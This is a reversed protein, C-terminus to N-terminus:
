LNERKIKEYLTHLAKARHSVLNKEDLSLEAYSRKLEEDFFLPDYGFGGDGRYHQLIVGHSEGQASLVSGDTRALVVSSVFKAARNSQGQMRRLLLENNAADDHGAISDGGAGTILTYQQAYRASHVGPLGGLADVCLGSDDALADMGSAQMFAVAKKTANALFTDGDEEVDLDLGIDSPTLMNPYINGLIRKIEKLKGKNNSAVLIRM